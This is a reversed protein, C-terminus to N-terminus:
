GNFHLASLAGLRLVFQQTVVLHLSYFRALVLGVLQYLCLGGFIEFAWNCQLVKQSSRQISETCISPLIFSCIETLYTTRSIHCNKLGLTQTSSLSHMQLQIFFYDTHELDSGAPVSFQSFGRLFFHTFNARTSFFFFFSSFGSLSPPLLTHRNLRLFAGTHLTQLLRTALVGREM